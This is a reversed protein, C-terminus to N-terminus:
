AEVEGTFMDITLSCKPAQGDRGRFATCVPRGDEWVWAKPYAEDGPRFLLTNLLIPCIRDEGFYDQSLCRDCWARQFDIHEGPVAPRYPEPKPASRPSHGNLSLIM